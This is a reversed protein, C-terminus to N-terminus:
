TITWGFFLPTLIPTAKRCLRMGTTYTGRTPHCHSHREGGRHQMGTGAHVAYRNHLEGQDSSLSQTAGRWATAYWYWHVAYRNHLDEQDSSLSQTAGRWPTACSTSIRGPATPRWQSPCEVSWSFYKYFLNFLCSRSFTIVEVNVQKM